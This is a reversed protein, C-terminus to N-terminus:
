GLPRSALRVEALTEVTGWTAIVARPTLTVYADTVDKAAPDSIREGPGFATAGPARVAATLVEPPSTSGSGASPEAGAVGTRWAVVARGAGDTAADALVSDESPSSLTRPAGLHGQDVELARVVYHGGGYGVFARLARGTGDPLLRLAPPSVERGTGTPTVVSVTHQPGFGHGPAATSFRYTAPTGADGEAVRQTEWAVSLRGTDDDVLPRLTSQVGDGIRHVPGSHGTAGVHRASIVHRDEWVVLLDGKRGVAVAADRGLTSLTFRLAVKFAVTGARRLYVTRTRGSAVVAAVDGHADTALGMPFSDPASTLTRLRGFAGTGTGLAIVVSGGPGGITGEDDRTSGLLAVHDKAYAAVRPAVLPVVERRAVAADPALAGVVTGGVGPEPAVVGSHGAATTWLGGPFGSTGSVAAPPSWPADAAAVAPVGLLAAVAATVLAASRAM